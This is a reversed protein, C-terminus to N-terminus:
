QLCDEWGKLRLGLWVETQAVPLVNCCLVTVGFLVIICFLFEGIKAGLYTNGFWISWEELTDKLSM